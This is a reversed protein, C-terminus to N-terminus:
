RSHGALTEVELGVINRSTKSFEVGIRVRHGEDLCRPRLCAPTAAATLYHASQWGRWGM